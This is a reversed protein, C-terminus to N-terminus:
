LRRTAPLSRASARSTSNGCQSRVDPGRDPDTSRIETHAAHQEPAPAAPLCTVAHMNAAGNRSRSFGHHCRIFSRRNRGYLRAFEIITATPLGTIASAWEPTRTKLHAQLEDPCDTYRRLYELDAFGEAFLVHM